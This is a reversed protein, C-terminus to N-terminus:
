SCRCIGLGFGSETPECRNTPRIIRLPDIGNEHIGVILETQVIEDTRM